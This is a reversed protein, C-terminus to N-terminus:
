LESRAAWLVPFVPAVADRAPIRRRRLRRDRHLALLEDIRLYSAYTVAKDIM